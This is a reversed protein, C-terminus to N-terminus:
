EFTDYETILEKRASERKRRTADLMNGVITDDWLKPRTPYVFAWTDALEDAPDLGVVSNHLSRFKEKKLIASAFGFRPGQPFSPHTTKAKAYEAAIENRTKNVDKMTPRGIVRALRRAELSKIATDRASSSMTARTKIEYTYIVIALAM